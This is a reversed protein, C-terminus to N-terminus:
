RVNGVLELLEERYADPRLGLDVDVTVSIADTLATETTQAVNAAPYAGGAVLYNGDAPWVALLADIPLETGEITITRDAQVPFEMAPTAYTGSLEILDATAGGAVEITGTDTQQVNEVGAEAMRDVLQSVAASQIRDTLQEQIPGLEDVSPAMDMRTASFLALDTDVAGLTDESVQTRLAKDGYTVSSAVAEVTLVDYDQEFVTEDTVESHKKWGGAQLKETPVEPLAVSGVATQCGATTALAGAGLAAIFSRRQM